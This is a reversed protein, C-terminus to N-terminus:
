LMPIHREFQSLFLIDDNNLSHIISKYDHFCANYGDYTTTKMMMMIMIIVIM